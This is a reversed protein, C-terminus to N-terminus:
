EVPYTGHGERVLGDELVLVENVRVGRHNRYGIVVVGVGAHVQEVTFHLDPIRALGERFNGRLADKGRVVGNSGPMLQAAMPSTFRVDDHFHALVGELDHRNWADEWSRAFAIPDTRV